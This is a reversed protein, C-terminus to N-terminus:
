SILREFFFTKRVGCFNLNKKFLEIYIKIFNEFAIYVGVLICIVRKKSLLDAFVTIYVM